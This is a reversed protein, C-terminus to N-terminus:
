GGAPDTESEGAPPLPRAVDAVALTGADRIAKGTAGPLDAVSRYALRVPDVGVAEADAPDLLELLPKSALVEDGAASQEIRAAENVEDGLATVELRGSSAIQGVYLNPGWHASVRL